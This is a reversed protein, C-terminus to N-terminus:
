ALVLVVVRLGRVVLGTTITEVLLEVAVVLRHSLVLFLHGALHAL